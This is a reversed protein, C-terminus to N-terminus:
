MWWADTFVIIALLLSFVGVSNTGFMWLRQRFWGQGPSGFPLDPSLRDATAEHSHKALLSLLLLIANVGIVLIWLQPERHLDGENLRQFFPFMTNDHIWIGLAALDLSVALLALNVGWALLSIQSRESRQLEARIRVHADQSTLGAQLISSLRRMLRTGLVIRSAAWDTLATLLSLVATMAVATWFDVM